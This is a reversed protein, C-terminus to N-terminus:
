FTAPLDHTRQSTACGESVTTCRLCASIFNPPVTHLFKLNNAYITCFFPVATGRFLISCSKSTTHPCRLLLSAERIQIENQIKSKTETKKMTMKMKTKTKTRTKTQTKTMTETKTMTQTMTMTKTQTETKTKTLTMTMTMTMTMAMAVTKTM